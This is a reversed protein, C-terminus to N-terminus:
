KDYDEKILYKEINSLITNLRTGLSVNDINVTKTLKYIISTYFEDNMIQEFTPCTQSIYNFLLLANMREIPSDLQNFWYPLATYIDIIGHKLKSRIFPDVHLKITKLETFM